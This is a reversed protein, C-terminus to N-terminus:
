NREPLLEDAPPRQHKDIWAKFYGPWPEQDDSVMKGGQVRVGFFQTGLRLVDDFFEIDLQYGVGEVEARDRIYEHLQKALECTPRKKKM